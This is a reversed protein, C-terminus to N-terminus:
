FKPVLKIQVPVKETNYTYEKKGCLPCYRSWRDKTTYVGTGVERYWIDVGQADIVEKKIEVREPDYVASQWAHRCLSQERKLKRIEEELEELRTKM